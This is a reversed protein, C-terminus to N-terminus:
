RPGPRISAHVNHAGDEAFSDYVVIRSPKGGGTESPLDNVIEAECHFRMAFMGGQLQFPLRYTVNDPLGFQTILISNVHAKLRTSYCNEPMVVVRYYGIAGGLVGMAVVFFMALRRTRM